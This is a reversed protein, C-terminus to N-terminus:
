EVGILEDETAGIAKLGEARDFFAAGWVFLGERMRWIATMVLDIDAGSTRGHGLVKTPCVLYDGWASFSLPEFRLDEFVEKIDALYRRAGEKGRYITAGVFAAAIAPHLELEDSALPLLAELNYEGIAASARKLIEVHRRVDEPSLQASTRSSGGLRPVRMGDSTVIPSYGVRAANRESRSQHGLMMSVRAAPKLFHPV